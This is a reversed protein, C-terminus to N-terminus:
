TKTSPTRNYDRIGIILLLISQTLIMYLMVQGAFPRITILPFFIVNTVLLLTKFYMLLLIIAVSYWWFTTGNQQVFEHYNHLLRGCVVSVVLAAIALAKGFFVHVPFFIMAMSQTKLVSLLADTGQETFYVYFSLVGLGLWVITSCIFVYFNIHRM